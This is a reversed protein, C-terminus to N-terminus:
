FTELIHTDFFYYTIPQGLSMTEQEMRQMSDLTLALKVPSKENLSSVVGTLESELAIRDSSQPSLGTYLTLNLDFYQLVAEWLDAYTDFSHAHYYYDLHHIFKSLSIENPCQIMFTPNTDANNLKFAFTLM